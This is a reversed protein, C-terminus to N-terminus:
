QRRMAEFWDVGSMQLHWISNTGTRSEICMGEGRCLASSQALISDRWVAEERKGGIRSDRGVGVEKRHRRARKEAVFEM